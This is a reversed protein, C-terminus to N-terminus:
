FKPKFKLQIRQICSHITQTNLISVINVRNVKEYTHTMNKSNLIYDLLSSTLPTAGFSHSLLYLMIETGFRETLDTVCLRLKM